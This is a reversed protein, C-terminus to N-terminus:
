NWSVHVRGNVVFRELMQNFGRHLVIHFARGGSDVARHRAECDGGLM